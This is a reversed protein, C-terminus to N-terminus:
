ADDEDSGFPRRPTVRDTIIAPASTVASSAAKAAAAVPRPEFLIVADQTGDYAQLRELFRDRADLIIAKEEATLEDVYADILRASDARDPIQARSLWAPLERFFRTVADLIDLNPNELFYLTLIQEIHFSKLKFNDNRKAEFWKWKKPVKVSKRFDKNGDNIGSAVSIYGKPDSLIYGIHGGKEALRKYTKLRRRHGKLLIEPVWYIDDGFNNTKGSTWGPVVDVGFEEEGNVIFSVTISHTQLTVTFKMGDPPVLEDELRRKVDMLVAGADPEHGPWADAYFLVDLDHPPSVATFRPFSGIQFCRHKGLVACVAGYVASVMNREDSTPTLYKQVFERLAAIIKDKM